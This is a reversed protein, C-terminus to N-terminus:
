VEVDPEVTPSASVLAQKHVPSADGVIYRNGEVCATHKNAWIGFHHLIISGAVNVNLSATGSGYQPIYVFHDCAQMQREDLGQGENGLVFCTNGRFPHQQVPTAQPDIEVGCIWCCRPPEKLYTIAESLKSFHRVPIHEWPIRPGQPRADKNGYTIIEKVGFAVASRVINGVNGRKAINHLLLYAAPEPPQDEQADM